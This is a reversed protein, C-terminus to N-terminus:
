NNTIYEGAEVQAWLAPVCAIAEALVKRATVIQKGPDAYKSFLLRGFDAETPADRKPLGRRWNDLESLQVINHTLWTKIQKATFEANQSKRGPKRVPAPYDKRANALAEKFRKIIVGDPADLQVILAPKELRHLTVDGKPVLQVTLTGIYSPVAPREAWQGPKAKALWACREIEYQWASLNLQSLREYRKPSFWDPAGRWNRSMTQVEAHHM